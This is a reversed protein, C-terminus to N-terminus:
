DKIFGFIELYTIKKMFMNESLEGSDGGCVLSPFRNMFINPKIESLKENRSLGCFCTGLMKEKLYITILITIQCM